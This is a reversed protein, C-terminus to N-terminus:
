KEYLFCKVMQNEALVRAEPYERKCIDMAHPCRPHFHCGQPRNLPSPLEAKIEPVTHPKGITPVAQLLMQTYPHKPELLVQHVTGHEVIRGLYMVAVEDALYAVVEMNHTIFLYSVQLQQQLSKLLNLVQAQVSVDLASTPEDCVILRPSVSLARAIAIRQRQGGSFEHPYLGKHQVTLGVQTLLYDLYAQREAPDSLLKQARLGEALIDVVRMRPDLSGYPDQFIFQVHRRKQQLAKKNLQALNVNELLVEGSAEEILQVIAKGVTTKGCGSEGVLALTQGQKIAFSINDAAILTARKSFLGQKLSYKVTLNKVTLLSDSRPEARRAEPLSSASETLGGLPKGRAALSPRVAFLKQSYPHQPAQFFDERTAMEVLKGKYMVAVRHATESVVALDHTIFLIAMGTQQQLKKLLSLIEAQLTVDLATTPEDAILLEPQGALAIAIMVRQKMGGSLEHPYQKFRTAPESMEVARLLEIAQKKRHHAKTRNKALVETIQEGITLVPNLSTMPEQFIMGIRQGRIKRLNIESTTLLDQNGLLIRSEQHFLASRPLLQLLSLATVTKGSGSEGVLAFTEGPYIDFNINDVVRTTHTLTKFYISLNKVQLIPDAM